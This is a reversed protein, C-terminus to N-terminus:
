QKYLIFPTGAVNLDNSFNTMTLMNGSQAVSYAFTNSGPSASYTGGISATNYTGSLTLIGTCTTKNFVNSSVQSTSTGAAGYATVITQAAITGNSVYQQFGSSLPSAATPNSAGKTIVNFSGAPISTSTATAFTLKWTTAATVLTSSTGGTPTGVFEGGGGGVYTAASPVTCAAHAALPFICLACSLFIKSFRM